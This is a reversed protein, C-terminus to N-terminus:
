RMIDPNWSWYSLGATHTILQEITAQSAPPRLRPTDGDFGELVQLDAFEPRDDAVPADFDLNGMEKQQLAAITTLVKTM